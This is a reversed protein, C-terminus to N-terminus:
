VDTLEKSNNTAPATNLLSRFTLMDEEQTILPRFRYLDYPHVIGTLAAERRIEDVYAAPGSGDRPWQHFGVWRLTYVEGKTPFSSGAALREPKGGRVCLVKRGPVAWSPIDTM